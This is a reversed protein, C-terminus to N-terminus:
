IDKQDFFPSSNEIRFQVQLTKYLQKEKNVKRLMYYLIQIGDMIHQLKRGGEKKHVYFHIKLNIKFTSYICYINFIYLLNQITHLFAFASQRSLFVCFFVFLLLFFFFFPKGRGNAALGVENSHQPAYKVKAMKVLATHCLPRQSSLRKRSDRQTTRVRVDCDENAKLLRKRHFFVFEAKSKEEPRHVTNVCERQGSIPITTM